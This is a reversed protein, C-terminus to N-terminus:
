QVVVKKQERKRDTTVNLWYIGKPLNRVDLTTNFEEIRQIFVSQGNSNFIEVLGTEFDTDALTLTFEGYQVPNPAIKLNSLDDPSSFDVSVINSFDVAWDFDVQKLRYYNTGNLPRDDIFTYDQLDTTTGRGAVFGINQWKSGDVSRQIDFGENNKETATEWTLHISNQEVKGKFSVLEVPLGSSANLNMGLHAFAENPSISWEMTVSAAGAKHSAANTIETVFFFRGDPEHFTQTQSPDATLTYPGNVDAVGLCDCVLDNAESSVTISSSSSGNGGLMSTANDVPTSQDVDHYSWAGANTVNSGSVVINGATPSGSNGLVYTYLKIHYNTNNATVQETMANGDFTVGSIDDRGKACVVLLREDGAPVSFGPITLSASNGQGVSVPNNDYVPQAYMSIFSILAIFQLAFKKM